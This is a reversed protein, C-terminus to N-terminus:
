KKEREELLKEIKKNLCNQDHKLCLDYLKKSKLLILRIKNSIVFFINMYKYVKKGTYIDLSLIETERGQLILENKIQNFLMANKIELHYINSSYMDYSELIMNMQQLNSQEREVDRSRNQESLSGKNYVRKVAMVEPLFIIPGYVIAELLKAFDMCKAILMYQPVNQEVIAKRRVFYSNVAFFTGEKVLRYFIDKGKVILEKDKVIGRSPVTGMIKNRGCDLLDVKHVCISCAEHREMVDFQKQLKNPDTWYDDGELWAIYRGRALNLMNTYCVTYPDSLYQPSKEAFVKVIHPYKKVYEEIINFSNDYSCDDHIIIEYNFKTKQQLVSDICQGIYEAHNYCFILVSVSVNENM